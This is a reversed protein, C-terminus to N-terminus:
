RIKRLNSPMISLKKRYKTVTRRSIIMGKKKLNEVIKLDSYPKKKDESAVINKITNMVKKSSIGDESDLSKVSSSFFYKLPFVGWSTQIYKNTVVRSVTSEHVEIKKSVDKLILPKIAEVGNDFFGRQLKLLMEVVRYITTKRQEISKLFWLAQSFKERLYKKIKPSVENNKLMNRYKANIRIKPIWEDNLIIVYNKGVKEVMVDPVIYQPTDSGYEEAPYPNLRKIVDVSKLVEEKTVGLKKAIESYKHKILLDFYKEVIIRSWEDKNPIFKLQILLSEQLDKAAIGYPEFRQIINLVDRFQKIPIDTDKAIEELPISLYGKEDLNSIIREGINFDDDSYTNLRLQWLLHEQLTPKNVVVEEIFDKKESRASNYYGADSTDEFYKILDEERTLEVEDIPENLQEKDNSEIELLPNETVEDYIKQELDILPLQLIEIVKHMYPTMLLKQGPIIIMDQRNKMIKDCKLDTM